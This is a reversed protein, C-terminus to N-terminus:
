PAPPSQKREGEALLQYTAIATNPRGFELTFSAAGAPPISDPTPYVKGVDVLKGAADYGLALVRVSEITLGSPNTVRGTIRASATGAGPPILHDDAVPLVTDLIFLNIATPDLPVAQGVIAINAVTGTVKGVQIAFPATVGPALTFLTLLNDDGTGLTASSSDTVTAVVTLHSLLVGAANRVAGMIHLNGSSDTYPFYEVVQLATGAATAGATLAVPPSTPGPASTATAPSAVTETAPAPPTPSATPSATPSLGASPGVIQALASQYEARQAPKLARALRLLVPGQVYDYESLVATQKALNTFYDARGQAGAPDAFVEVSGGSAVSVPSAAGLPLRTDHFTDKSLYGNPRGLLQNPDTELTYLVSRGVPLGAGKLAAVIAAADLAGGPTATAPPGATLTAAADATPSEALPSLLPASTPPVPGTTYTPYPTYTPPPTYTPLPTYTPAPLATVAVPSEGCSLVLSLALLLAGGALFRSM